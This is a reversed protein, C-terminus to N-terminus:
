YDIGKKHKWRKHTWLYNSPNKKLTEELLAFFKRSIELEDFGNPNDPKIPKLSVEYYGRKPSTTEAYFMSLNNKVALFDYGVFIPTERGMFNLSYKAKSIHPSQDGIVLFANRGNNPTNKIIEITNQMEIPVLGYKSRINFLKQDWFQNQLKMYVVKFDMDYFKPCISNLEWNIVHGCLVICDNKGMNNEFEEMNIYKIRASHEAQSITFLKIMEAFLSSFHKYFGKIIEDIEKPTKEPFSLTINERIVGKRYGIVTFIFYVLPDTIKYIIGLPLKSISILLFYLLQNM